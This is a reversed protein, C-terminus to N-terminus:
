WQVGPYLSSIRFGRYANQGDRAYALRHSSERHRSHGRLYRVLLASAVSTSVRLRREEPSRRQRWLLQVSEPDFQQHFCITATKTNENITFVPITTYCPSRVREAPSWRVHHPRRRQGDSHPLLDRATPGFDVSLTACVALRSPRTRRVPHLRGPLRPAVSINGTGAGDNYDVKVVWNQHRMSVLINHDDPSYVIANTHTWDPFQMPHRTVDLHDFENWVWM